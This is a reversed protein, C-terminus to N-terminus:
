EPLESPTAPRVRGVSRQGSAGFARFNARAATLSLDANPGGRVEDADADSQGDDEWLCVPCVEFAARERLTVYGCCLCEVAV